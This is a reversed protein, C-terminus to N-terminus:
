GRADADEAPDLIPALEALIAALEATESSRAARLAELEALMARNILHAEVGESAQERLARLTERLQISSQRMRQLELGQVDVQRTLDEIRALLAATDEVAAVEAGAQEPGSDEPGSGEAGADEVGAIEADTDEAGPAADEAAVAEARAADAAEQTAAALALAARLETSVAREAELAARLLDLEATDAEAPEPSTLDVAPPAQLQDIGAGIRALAATIRRELEALDKM